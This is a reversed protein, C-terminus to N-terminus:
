GTHLPGRTGFQAEFKLNVWHAILEEDMRIITDGRMCKYEFICKTKSFLHMCKYEFM